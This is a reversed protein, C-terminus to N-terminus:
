GCITAEAMGPDEEDDAPPGQLGLRRYGELEEHGQEFHFADETDAQWCGLENRM